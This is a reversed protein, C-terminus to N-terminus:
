EAGDGRGGPQLFQLRLLTQTLMLALSLWVLTLLISSTIILIGFVCEKSCLLICMKLFASALCLKEQQMKTADNKALKGFVCM